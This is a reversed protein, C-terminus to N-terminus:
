AEARQARRKKLIRRVLYVLGTIIAILVVLAGLLVWKAFRLIVTVIKVAAPHPYWWYSSVRDRLSQLAEPGILQGNLVVADIARTNDINALPDADLLVLNADKGVDVSGMQNERGLFRAPMITSAQLAEMPTFGAEVFHDLENHLSYGPVVFPNPSDTGTMIPVGAKHMERVIRLLQDVFARHYLKAQQPTVQESVAVSALDWVARLALPVYRMGEPKAIAPDGIGGNVAEVTLTPIQWTQNKVFKQYLARCKKEDYFDPSEAQHKLWATQQSGRVYADVTERRMRMEDRDDCCSVGVDMLHEVSRQGADSAEGVSVLDPVHGAFVIGIRKAERAVAFYSERNLSSYVKVFDYGAAKIDDVAKRAEAANHVVFSGPWSPPDGDVLPGAALINPHLAGALVESRRAEVADLDFAAMDRVGTVGNVLMLPGNFHTDWTDHAHMDNLGPILFKGRGEVLMMDVPVADGTPAISVIKGHGVVVTMDPKTPGGTTDVVSVHVIAFFRAGQGMPAHESCAALVLLTAGLALSESARRLLTLVSWGSLLLAVM